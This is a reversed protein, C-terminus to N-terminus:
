HRDANRKESEIGQITATLAAVANSLGFFYAGECIRV